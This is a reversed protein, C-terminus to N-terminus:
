VPANTQLVLILDNTPSGYQVYTYYICFAIAGLGWGLVAATINTVMCTVNSLEEKIDMIAKRQNGYELDAEDREEDEKILPQRM